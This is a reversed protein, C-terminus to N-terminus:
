SSPPPDVGQILMVYNMDSELDTIPCYPFNKTGYLSDATFWIEDDVLDGIKNYQNRAVICRCTRLQNRYTMLVDVKFSVAYLGNYIHEINTIYYYRSFEVIFAYNIGSLPEGEFVIVPTLVNASDRLTGVVDVGIQTIDKDVKNHQSSNYYFRITM